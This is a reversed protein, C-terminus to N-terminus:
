EFLLTRTSYPSGDPAVVVSLLEFTVAFDGAMTTADSSYQITEIASPENFDDVESLPLVMENVLPLGLRSCQLTRFEGLSGTQVDLRVTVKGFSTPLWEYRRDVDRPVAETPASPPPPEIVTLNQDPSATTLTFAPVTGGAATATADVGPQFYSPSNAVFFPTYVGEYAGEVLQIPQALGAVDLTGAGFAVITGVKTVTCSLDFCDRSLTRKTCTQEEGERTTFGASATTISGQTAVSAPLEGSQVLIFGTFFSLLYGGLDGDTGTDSNSDNNLAPDPCGLLLLWTSVPVM